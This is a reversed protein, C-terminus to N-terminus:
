PRRGARKAAQCRSIAVDDRAGPALRRPVRDVSGAGRPIDVTESGRPLNIALLKRTEYTDPLREFSSFVTAHTVWRYRLSGGSRSGLYHQSFRVEVPTFRQADVLYTVRTPEHSRGLREDRRRARTTREDVEGVLLRLLKGDRDITGQDRLRGSGLAQRVTAMPDPNEATDPAFSPTFVPMPYSRTPDTEVRVLARSFSSYVSHRGPRFSGEAPAVLAVAGTRRHSPQTFVALDHCSWPPDVRKARWSAPSSTTTWVEASPSRPTPKSLPAGEPLVASRVVFHLIGGRAPDVAARAEAVPDLKAAGGPLLFAAALGTGLAVATISGAARTRRRRRDARAVGRDLQDGLAGWHDDLPSPTM